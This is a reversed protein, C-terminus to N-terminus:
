AAAVAGTAPVGARGGAGPVHRGAGGALGDLRLERAPVRHAVLAALAAGHSRRRHLCPDVGGVAGPGRGPPAGLRHPGVVVRRLVARGPGRVRAAALRGVVDVVM